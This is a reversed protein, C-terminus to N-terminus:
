MKSMYTSKAEKSTEPEVKEPSTEKLTIHKDDAITEEISTDLLSLNDVM